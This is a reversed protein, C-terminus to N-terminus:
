NQAQVVEQLQQIVLQDIAKELEAAEKSALGHKNVADVLASKQQELETAITNM